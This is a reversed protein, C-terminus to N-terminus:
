SSPVRPTPTVAHTVLESVVLRAREALPEGMEVGGAAARGLFAGIFDRAAGIADIGGVFETRGNDVPEAAAGM